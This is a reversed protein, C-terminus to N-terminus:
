VNSAVENSVSEWYFTIIEPYPSHGEDNKWYKSGQVCGYLGKMM